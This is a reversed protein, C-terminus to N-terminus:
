RSPPYFLFNAIQVEDSGPLFFGFRGDFPAQRSPTTRNWSDLTQWVGDRVSYQHVLQSGNIQVSLHVFSGDTPISHPTRVTAGDRGGVVESRYFHDGDLQLMVHNQNDVYGVVWRLRPGSSFPNGSRDTRITFSYKGDTAPADYLVFGGGRRVLWADARQWGLQDFREMSTVIARLDLTRSEGAAVTLTRTTAVNAPGKASVEYQGEPLTLKTPGAFQRVTEAGRAVSIQTSADAMVAVTAPARALVVDASTLTLTAGGAFERTMSLPEFGQLVFQLTRQGPPVGAYTLTGDAGVTGIATGDLLVQLGRPLERFELTGAAPEAAAASGAAGSEVLVPAPTAAPAAANAAGAAPRGDTASAAADSSASPGIRAWWFAGAALLAVAGVALAGTRALGRRSSRRSSTVPGGGRPQARAEPVVAVPTAPLAAPAM